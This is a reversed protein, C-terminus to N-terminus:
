KRIVIEDLSFRSKKRLSAPDSDLRHGVACIVATHLGLEKLGLIEDFKDANFGGMPGADIGLLAASELFMGFAIHTQNSAWPSVNEKIMNVFNMVADRLPKLEEVTVGEANASSQIYSDVYTEDLTTKHAFVILHSAETVKPQNYAAEQLKARTLPDEVVIFKWPQLGYWSPSLRAYDLLENIELDTLKKTPDFKQTAYRWELAEKISKM